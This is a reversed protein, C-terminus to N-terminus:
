QSRAGYCSFSHCSSAQAGRCLAAGAQWVLSLGLLWFNFFFLVFHVGSDTQRHKFGPEMVSKTHDTTAGEFEGQAHM